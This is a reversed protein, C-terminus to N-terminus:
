RRAENAEKVKQAWYQAFDPLIDRVPSPLKDPDIPVVPLGVSQLSARQALRDM